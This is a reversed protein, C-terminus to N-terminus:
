ALRWLRLTGDASATALLLGDPSIAVGSVYDSHAAFTHLLKGSRTEWVTAQGRKDGGVLLTDDPAFALATLEPPPPLTVTTTAPTETSRVIEVATSTGVWRALLTGARNLTVRPALPGERREVLQGDSVRWTRVAMGTIEHPNYTGSDALVLTHGDAAFALAAVKAAATTITWLARDDTLSYLALLGTDATALFRGDPSFALLRPAVRPLRLTHRRTGDPLSWVFFTASDEGAALNSGDPSFALSQVPVSTPCRLRPILTAADLILVGINTGLALWRGDPSFALPLDPRSMARGAEPPQFRVGAISAGDSSGELPLASAALCDASTPPPIPTLTPPVIRTNPAAMSANPVGVRHPTPSPQAAGGCAALILVALATFASRGARPRVSRPAPWNLPAQERAVHHTHQRIKM